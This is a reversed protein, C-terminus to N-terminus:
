WLNGFEDFPFHEPAGLIELRDDARVNELLSESVFIHSLELTNKIRIIRARSKDIGWCFMVAGAIADRHSDLAVPVYASNARLCTLCNAYTADWDIKDALRRTTFDALGIGLGNGHSQETIDLLAIQRARLGGSLGKAFYRGVVNPDMGAGSIEKGIWDVVLVDTEPLYLQPMNAFAERLLEPEKLPIEERTLAEVRCTQEFANEICGLGFLVPANQLVVSGFMPMLEGMFDYGNIHCAEAGHQKGLGIAAMKMLGSEYPGRFSTHPKIRNNLIIGDAGAAFKDIFVDGKPCSGIKVTDMSAYIPCGCSEETIGFGALVARQGEATAGGHSGMAPIIFPNAGRGKVFAVLEQAIALANAVGRSGCTICISMGPQVREMIQPRELASRVAARVDPLGNQPFHQAVPVMRPLPIDRLIASTQTLM